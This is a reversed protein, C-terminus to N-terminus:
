DILDEYEDIIGDNLYEHLANRTALIASITSRIRRHSVVFGEWRIWDANLNLVEESKMGIIYEWFFEAAAKTIKSPEWTYSYDVIINDQIKLFITISDDCIINGITKTVTFDKMERLFQSSKYYEQVLLSSEESM